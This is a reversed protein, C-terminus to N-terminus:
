HTRRHRQSSLVTPRTFHHPLLFLLFIDITIILYDFNHEERMTPPHNNGQMIYYLTIYYLM